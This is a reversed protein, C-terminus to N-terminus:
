LSMVIAFYEFFDVSMTFLAIFLFFFPVRRDPLPLFTVLRFCAIAMPKDSALFFPALTGALFFVRDRGAALRFVAFVARFFAREYFAVDWNPRYWSFQISTIVVEEGALVPISKKGM